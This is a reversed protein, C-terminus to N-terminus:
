FDFPSDDVESPDDQGMAIIHEAQIERRGAYGGEIEHWYSVEDEGRRWCLFVWRGEFTTPFDILGHELGGQPFRLGMAILEDKVLSLIDEKLYDIRLQHQILNDNDPNKPNEVEKGWLADLVELKKIHHALASKKAEIRQLISEINPIAANSEAVTFAKRPM